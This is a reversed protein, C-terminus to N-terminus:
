ARRLNGEDDCLLDVGLRGIMEAARFRGQRKVLRAEATRQGRLIHHARTAAQAARLGRLNTAHQLRLARLKRGVVSPDDLTLRLECRSGRPQLLSEGRQALTWSCTVVAHARRSQAPTKTGELRQRDRM